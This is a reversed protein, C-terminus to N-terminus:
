PSFSNGTRSNASEKKEKRGEWKYAIYWLVMTLALLPLSVELFLAIAHLNINRDSTTFDADKFTM